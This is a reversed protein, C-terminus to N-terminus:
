KGDTHNEKEVPPVSLHICEVDSGAETQRLKSCNRGTSWEPLDDKIRSFTINHCKVMLTDCSQPCVSRPVPTDMYCPALYSYCIFKVMQKYCDSDEKILQEVAAQAREELTTINIGGPVYVMNGQSLYQNCVGSNRLAVCSPQPPSFTSFSIYNYIIKFTDGSCSTM